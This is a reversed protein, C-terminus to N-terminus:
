AITVRPGPPLYVVHECNRLADAHDATVRDDGPGCDVVDRRGDNAYIYDDGAGAVVDDRGPGPIIRDAGAGSRIVDNGSGADILDPGSGARIDDNGWQAEVM